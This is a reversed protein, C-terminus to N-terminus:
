RLTPRPATRQRKVDPRLAPVTACVFAVTAITSLVARATNGATWESLFTAWPAASGASGADLAAISYNRPVHYLITLLFGALYLVGGIIVYRSRTSRPKRVEAVLAVVSLVAAGFFCAMFPAQEANRNFEQMRALGEGPPLEALAPMTRASFVTYVGATVGAALAAAGSLIRSALM